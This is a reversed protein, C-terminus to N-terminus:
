SDTIYYSRSKGLVVFDVITINDHVAIEVQAMLHCNQTCQLKLNHMLAFVLNNFNHLLSGEARRTHM